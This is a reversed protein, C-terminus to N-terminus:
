KKTLLEFTKIADCTVMEYPFLLENDGIKVAIYELAQQNYIRNGYEIGRIDNHEEHGTKEGILTFSFTQKGWVQYNEVIVEVASGIPLARLM